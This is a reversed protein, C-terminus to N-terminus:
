RFRTEIELRQNATPALQLSYAAVGLCALLSLTIVLPGTGFIERILQMAGGDGRCPTCRIVRQLSHRWGPTSSDRQDACQQDTEWASM